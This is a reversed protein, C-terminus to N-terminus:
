LKGFAALVGFIVLAVLGIALMLGIFSLLAMIPWGLLWAWTWASTVSFQDSYLLAHLVAGIGLYVLASTLRVNM